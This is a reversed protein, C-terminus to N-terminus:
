ISTDQADTDDSAGTISSFFQTESYFKMIENRLVQAALLEQVLKLKKRSFEDKGNLEKAKRCGIPRASKKVESAKESGPISNQGDIDDNTEACM